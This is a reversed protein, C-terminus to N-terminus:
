IPPECAKKKKKKAYNKNKLLTEFLQPQQTSSNSIPGLVTGPM